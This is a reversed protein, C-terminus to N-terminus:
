QTRLKNITKAFEWVTAMPCSPHHPIVEGEPAGGGCCACCRHGNPSVEIWLRTDHLQELEHETLHNM